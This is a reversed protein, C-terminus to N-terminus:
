IDDAIGDAINVFLGTKEPYIRTKVSFGKEPFLLRGEEQDTSFVNSNYIARTIANAHDFSGYGAGLFVNIKTSAIEAVFKKFLEDSVRIDFPDAESGSLVWVQDYESLSKKDYFSVRTHNRLMHHYELIVPQNKCSLAMKGLIKEFSQGGDGGWWGSKLDIILISQKDTCDQPAGGPTSSPGVGTDFFNSVVPKGPGPESTDVINNPNPNPNNPGTNNNNINNGSYQSIPNGTSDYISIPKGSSDYVPNYNSVPRGESDFVNVPKGAGDFVDKRNGNADYVGSKMIVNSPNIPNQSSDFIQIPNGAADKFQTGDKRIKSSDLPKGQSDFIDIPKGTASDYIKNDGYTGSADYVNIPNGNKDYIQTVKNGDADYVDLPKLPNKASDDYVDKPYIRTGESDYIYERDTKSESSQVAPDAKSKSKSTFGAKETCATFSLLSAALTLFLYSFRHKNITGM